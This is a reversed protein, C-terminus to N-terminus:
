SSDDLKHGVDQLFTCLGSLPLAPDALIRSLAYSVEAYMRHNTWADQENCLDLLLPPDLTKGLMITTFNENVKGFCVALMVNESATHQLLLHNCRWPQKDKVGQWLVDLMSLWASAILPQEGRDAPLPLLIIQNTAPNDFRRLFARYFAINLLAQELTASRSDAVLLDNLRSASTAGMFHAVVSQALDLDAAATDSTRLHSELFQRCSLAEVSNEIATNVQERLGDFFVEYAIPAVHVYGAISESPLIAGAVLPYRRGAQDRSPTLVGILTYRLDRSVYQFEVPGGNDYSQAWDGESSLREFARQILEDFETVVPHNANVRVFDARNPLKGYLTYTAAADTAARKFPLVM